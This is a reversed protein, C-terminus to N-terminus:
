QSMRAYSSRLLTVRKVYNRTEAFPMSELFEDIPKRPAARRWKLVNGQGANYSAIALRTEGGFMGILRKLHVTGLEINTVPETLRTVSFIGHLERGLEQGTAPMLQMLGIAGAPSKARPNFYSEQLILAMVLYPDISNRAANKKIAEQYHLPYYMKLFYPPVSDQEVSALQPFAQRLTRYMPELSGVSNYYDALLADAFQQNDRTANKRIELIADKADTLATLEYALRLEPPMNKEAIESWDPRTAKLPSVPPMRWKAGRAEAYTVYIDEYPAAALRQYAAAAQEKQGAREITRAYWYDAQRKVNPNGYTDRIFGFLDKAGNLDGGAFAAWAKDWFHQLGPDAFRDLKVIEGILQREYADQNKAESLAALTNLVELRVEPAVTGIQLLDKLRETALRDYEDKKAKKALDVLQINKKVNAFKPKTILKAKKGKGKRVKVTGVKQKVVITKIVIPNISVALARYSKSAHYIAPIAIEFTGAALPDLVKVAEDYRHLQYLALGHNLKVAAAIPKPAVPELVTLEDLATQPDNDRLLGVARALREEANFIITGSDPIGSVRRAFALADAAQNSSAEKIGITRAEYFASALDGHYFRAEVAGWRAAAAAPPNLSRDATTAYAEGAHIWDGSEAYLRGLNTGADDAPVLQPNRACLKALTVRALDDRKALGYAKALYYLRYHEVARSGFDFSALEQAAGAGDNHRLTDLAHTFRDRLKALDPPAQPKQLVRGEIAHRRRHPLFWYSALVLLGAVVPISIALVLWRKRLARM